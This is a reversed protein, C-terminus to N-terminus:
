IKGTLLNCSGNRQNFLDLLSNVSIFTSIMFCTVDQEEGFWVCNGYLHGPSPVEKLPPLTLSRKCECLKLFSVSCHGFSFMDWFTM